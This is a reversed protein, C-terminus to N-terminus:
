KFRFMIDKSSVWINCFIYNFCQYQYSEHVFIQLNHEDM